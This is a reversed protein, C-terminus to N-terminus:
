HYDNAIIQPKCDYVKKYFEITHRYDRQVTTKELDGIHQSVIAQGNKILCISNKIDAGMALVQNTHEFGPPLSFVTLRM